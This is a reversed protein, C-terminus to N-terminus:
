LGQLKKELWDGLPVTVKVKTFFSLLLIFKKSIRSKLLGMIQDFYKFLCILSTEWSWIDIGRFSNGEDDDDGYNEYDEVTEALLAQYRENEEKDIKEQERKAKERKESFFILPWNIEFPCKPPMTEVLLSVLKIWSKQGLRYNNVMIKLKRWGPIHKAM